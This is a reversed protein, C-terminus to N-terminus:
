GAKFWTCHYEACLSEELHFTVPFDARCLPQLQSGWGPPAVRLTAQLHLGIQQLCPSLVTHQCWTRKTEFLQLGSLFLIKIEYACLHIFNQLKTQWARKANTPCIKSKKELSIKQFRLVIFGSMKLRMQNLQVKNLLLDLPNYSCSLLCSKRSGKSSSTHLSEAEWVRNGAKGAAKILDCLWVAIM